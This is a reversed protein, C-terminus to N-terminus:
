RVKKLNSKINDFKCMDDVISIISEDIPINFWELISNWIRNFLDEYRIVMQKIEPVREWRKGNKILTLDTYREWHKQIAKAGFPCRIFNEISSLDVGLKRDERRRYKYEYYNSVLIDCPHRVIMLRKGGHRISHRYEADISIGATEAYIDLFAMVWTRGSKMFSIIHVKDM